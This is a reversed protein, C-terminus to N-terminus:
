ARLALEPQAPTAARQQADLWAVLEADTRARTMRVTKGTVPCVISGTEVVLGLELLETIRPRVANLDDFGLATAVERDTRPDQSASLYILVAEARRGLRGNGREGALSASSNPHPKM